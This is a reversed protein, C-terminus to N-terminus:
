SVCMWKGPLIKDTIKNQRQVEDTSTEKNQNDQMKAKQKSQLVCSNCVDIGGVPNSGDIGNSSRGCVCAKFREAVPIPLVRTVDFYETFMLTVQIV